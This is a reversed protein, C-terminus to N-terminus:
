SAPGAVEEPVGTYFGTTRDASARAAAPDAGSEVHAACWADSSRTILARAEETPYWAEAEAPTPVGPAGLHGALGLLGLEWGIGVAGPGFRDWFEDDVHGVHDITLVTGGEASPTFRVEIGSVQGGFEWTAAFSQPPDCSEVVGGANGELQYRGGVRLEGTIPMFWRPIREATTCADWVDDVPADYTRAITVVRAEGAELTRSGVRRQVASIHENVDIM